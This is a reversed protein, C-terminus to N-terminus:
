RDLRLEFFLTGARAKLYYAPIERFGLSKYLSVAEGMKEAVTDLRMAHYGITRAEAFLQNALRRGLGLRRFEPRVYLRKMECTAPELQRIAGCGAPKDDVRALLLMGGPTAYNGPLSALEEDFNQYDLPFGLGAAYELFLERAIAIDASSQARALIVTHTLPM